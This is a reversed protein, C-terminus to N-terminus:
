RPHADLWPWVDRAFDHFDPIHGAGEMTWLEVDLSTGCDFREVRTEEGALGFDLDKRVPDLVLGPACGDYTQWHAVTEAASPYGPVSADVTGGAYFITDDLDGHIQLVSVDDSPACDSPDLWTMGALSVAATVLDSADCAMRHTMFGGNSHGIVFVRSADVSYDTSVDEILSRLYAVDDVSAGFGCCADTANWFPDNAQNTTGEPAILLVGHSDVLANVGFYGTQIAPTVGYGHLVMLLPWQSEADYAAPVTLEVPREGGFTTRPGGDAGGGGSGSCGALVLLLAAPLLSRVPLARLAPRAGLGAGRSKALNSRRAHIFHEPHSAAIM